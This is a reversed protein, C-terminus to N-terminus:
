DFTVFEGTSVDGASVSFRRKVGTFDDLKGTLWELAPSTDVCSIHTLCSRVFGSEGSGVWVKYVDDNDVSAWMNSLYEAAEVTQEPEWGILGITNISGASIGTHMDWTYDEANGYHTLGWIIGAEWAGNTGGGSLVLARCKKSSDTATAAQLSAAIALLQLSKTKHMM